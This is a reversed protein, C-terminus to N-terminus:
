SGKVPSRIPGIFLGGVVEVVVVVVVVMGFPCLISSGKLNMNTDGYILAARM